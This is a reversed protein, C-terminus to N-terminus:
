STGEYITGGDEATMVDKATDPGERCFGPEQVIQFIGGPWIRRPVPNMMQNESPVTRCNRSAYLPDGKDIAFERLAHIMEGHLSRLDAQALRKLEAHLRAPLRLTYRVIQRDDM